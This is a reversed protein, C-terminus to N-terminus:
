RGQRDTDSCRARGDEFRPADTQTHLRSGPLSCLADDDVVDLCGLPVGELEVIGVFRRADAGHTRALQVIARVLAFMLFGRIVFETPALDLVNTILLDVPSAASIAYYERLADIRVLTSDSTVHDNDGVTVAEVYGSVKALVPVLHGDIAADDTSEHGRGYSWQKFAWGGGLLAILLIIPLVLRRKGSKVPRAASPRQEIQDVDQKLVTAM